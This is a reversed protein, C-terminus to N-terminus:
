SKANNNINDLLVKGAPSSAEITIERGTNVYKIHLHIDAAPLCGEGKDPWEVLCLSRDSFYDRIGMFELEEPDSLRYLDFHYVDIDALEYPEVLTYTPSKVAGQHGLAQILGRSMTTKGAGLEGTLYIVLPPKIAQALTRGLAVTESEDQLQLVLTESSM